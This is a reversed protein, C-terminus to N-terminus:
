FTYGVGVAGLWQSRRGAISVLPSAAFDGLLRKYTGGGFLKFGHLLDGTLSITALTGITYDKWGGRANYAPLGSAISGAPTVTFYASAYRSDAHEASAFLGVGAKRSLPTFYNISPQWIGGKYVSTVDHRYSVSVSLKDYPSTIVGTKGIGVFGGLEIATGVKGLAKVRPDEISKISSRNFNVVGVPGAQFDWVPGHGNPILDISARNGQLTYSFGHISGLAVPAPVFHYENSGEYDPLYIAAVGVTNTDGFDSSAGAAAAPQPPVTSDQAFAPSSILTLAAAALLYSKM